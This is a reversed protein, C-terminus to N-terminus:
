AYLLRSIIIRAHFTGICMANSPHETNSHRRRVAAAELLLVTWSFVVLAVCQWQMNVKVDTLLQCIRSSIYAREPEVVHARVHVLM